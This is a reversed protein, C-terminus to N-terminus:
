KNHTCRSAHGNCKCRGGVAFDAVGYFTQLGGNASIGPASPAAGGGNGSLMTTGASKMSFLSGGSPFVNAGVSLSGSPSRQDGGGGGSGGSGVVKLHIYFM